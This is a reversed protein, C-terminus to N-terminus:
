SLPVSIAVPSSSIGYVREPFVWVSFEELFDDLHSPGFYDERLRPVLATFKLKTL